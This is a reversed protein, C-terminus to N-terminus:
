GSFFRKWSQWPLFGGCGPCRFYYKNDRLVLGSGGCVECKRQAMIRKSFEIGPVVFPTVGALAGVVIQWTLEVGAPSAAAASVDNIAPIRTTSIRRNGNLHTCRKRSILLHSKTPVIKFLTHNSNPLTPLLLSSSVSPVLAEM